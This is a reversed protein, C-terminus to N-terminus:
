PLADEDLTIIQIGATQYAQADDPLRDIVLTDIREAPAFQALSTNNLKSSDCVVIVQSAHEVMGRKTEALMIDAVCAGHKVSLSNAGMFAKDVNLTDLISRGNISVM